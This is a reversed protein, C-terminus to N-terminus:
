PKCMYSATLLESQITSLPLIILLHCIQFNYLSPTMAQKLCQELMKHPSSLFVM